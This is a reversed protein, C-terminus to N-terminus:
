SEMTFNRVFQTIKMLNCFVGEFYEEKAIVKNKQVGDGITNM